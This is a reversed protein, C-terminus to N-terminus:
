RSGAPELVPIEGNSLGRDFYSDELQKRDNFRQVFSEVSPHMPETFIRPFLGLVFILIILPGLAIAERRTLDPLRRNKPNDIPGWFMKQVVTLMYAAGLIVGIAAGMAMARGWQGLTNASLFSGSIVLWEGVFGNTGPLGISSFTVIVFAAAYWPMVKALGGFEALDRTHRRDYIVGVLLFLAGTSIGHNVM